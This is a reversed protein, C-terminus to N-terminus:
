CGSCDSRLSSCLFLGTLHAPGRPRLCRGGGAQSCGLAQSCSATVLGRRAGSLASPRYGDVSTRCVHPSVCETVM